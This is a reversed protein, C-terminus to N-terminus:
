RSRSDRELDEWVGFDECGLIASIMGLEDFDCQLEDVIGFDEGFWTIVKGFACACVVRSNNLDCRLDEM